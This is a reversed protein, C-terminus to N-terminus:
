YGFNGLVEKYFTHLQAESANLLEGSNIDLMM